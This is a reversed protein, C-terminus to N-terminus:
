VFAYLAVRDYESLVPLTRVMYSKPANAYGINCHFLLLYSM